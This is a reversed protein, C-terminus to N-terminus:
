LGCSKNPLYVRSVKPTVSGLAGGLGAALRTSPWGPCAASGPGEDHLGPNESVPRM